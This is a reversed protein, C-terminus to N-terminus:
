AYRGTQEDQRHGDSEVVVAAAIASWAVVLTTTAESTPDVVRLQGTGQNGVRSIDSRVKDDEGEAIEWRQSWGGVGYLMLYAM